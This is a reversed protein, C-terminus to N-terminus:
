LVLFNIKNQPEQPIVFGPIFSFFDEEVSHMCITLAIIYSLVHASCM